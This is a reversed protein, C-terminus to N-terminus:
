GQEKSLEVARVLMEYRVLGPLAHRGVYTMPVGDIALRRADEEQALVRPLHRHDSLAAAFEAEDLGVGRAVARLVAPDAIDQDDQFFAEYVRRTYAGLKGQERAVEAGEFALRSRPQVSPLKIPIGLREALPYVSQRWVRELYEGKPDLTPVPDPRLEFARYDVEVGHEAALRELAPVELFCFPCVYDGYVTVKM